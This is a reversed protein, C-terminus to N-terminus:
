VVGRFMVALGRLMERVRRLVVFFSAREVAVAPMLTGRTFRIEGVAV